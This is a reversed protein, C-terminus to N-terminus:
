YKFHAVNMQLEEALKALAESANAIEAMSATQEEVSASAQQTGAANEESIASLNQIIDIMEDKKTEMEAASQNLTSIIERITEIAGSIGEFRKNTNEVSETQAVVLHGVREMTKVAKETKGSLDNIVGAIEDTFSNSQEALKRIEDAVVAFGRGADGARAAEIAANLALLNTQDAISKIMKSATEIKEASENTEIIIHHVENTAKDSEATKEVLVNLAEAGKNRLRNVKEVATNLNEMLKKNQAIHDGLGNIHMAGEQTEKAQDSAGRAIEEITRAVEDIAVAAQQSTSTLEESSAAVQGSTIAIQQVLTSLNEQLTVVAHAIIGIEDGRHLLKMYKNNKDLTLDYKSLKELLASLHTIPRAISKGLVIALVIGLLMVVLSIMLIVKKLHNVGNLVDSEYSAIMLTWSTNPIPEAAAFRQIGEFKYHLIGSKGLGLKKLAIGFDKLTGNSEIEGLANRQSTVMERNPHAYFTSDGGLIFAYGNKGIGLGDTMESLSTGDRRAILVGVIKDDKKIPTAYMVVPNGTVKSILVNSVNTQGEFAKKIYDRDALNATEGSKVYQATGDPLVVGLDLYGLREIDPALSEQQVKWDMTQTRARIALEELIALQMNMSTAVHKGSEKAYQQMASQVENLTADMSFKFAAGGLIISIILVLIGVFAGIKKSLSIKM